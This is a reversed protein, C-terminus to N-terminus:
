ILNYSFIKRRGGSKLITCFEPLRELLLEKHKEFINQMSYSEMKPHIRLDELQFVQAITMSM